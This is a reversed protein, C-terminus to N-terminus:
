QTPKFLYHLFLSIVSLSYKKDISISEPDKMFQQVDNTDLKAYLAITEYSVGWHQNLIDIIGKVRENEDIMQIGNALMFILSDFNMRSDGLESFGYKGDLYALIVDEEIFGREYFNKDSM